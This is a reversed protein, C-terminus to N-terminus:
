VFGFFGWLFLKIKREKFFCNLVEWGWGDFGCMCLDYMYLEVLFLYKLCYEISGDLWLVVLMFYFLYNVYGLKKIFFFGRDILVYYM